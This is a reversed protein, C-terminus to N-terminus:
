LNINGQFDQDGVGLKSCFLNIYFNPGRGRCPFKYTIYGNKNQLKQNIHNSQHKYAFNSYNEDM